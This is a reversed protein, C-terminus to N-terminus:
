LIIPDSPDGVTDWLDRLTPYASWVEAVTGHRAWVTGVTLLTPVIQPAPATVEQLPLSFVNWATVEGLRHKVPAGAMRVHMSGPLLEALPGMGPVHVFWLSEVRLRLMLADEGARDDTRLNLVHDRGGPLDVVATPLARGAAHFGEGRQVLAVDGHSAPTVPLSLMPHRVSKLWLRTLQAEIDDTFEQLLVDDADFSRIRYHNTQGGVAADLPFFEYDSIQAEGATVPLRAGGRVTEWFLQNHSREVIAYEAEAPSDDLGTASITIRSLEDDYALSITM